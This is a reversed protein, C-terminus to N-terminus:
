LAPREHKNGEYYKKHFIAYWFHATAFYILLLVLAGAYIGNKLLQEAGHRYIFLGLSIAFNLLGYLINKVTGFGFISFMRGKWIGLVFHPMGNMLTMGIIFDIIDM